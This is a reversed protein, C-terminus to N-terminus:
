YCDRASTLNDPSPYVPGNSCDSDVSVTVGNYTENHGGRYQKHRQNYVWHTSPICSISATSSAGDWDAGVIYDPVPSISAFSDLGSGCSSGYVGSKQAPSVHLQATWAAMFSKVAALCSSNSTDYAELDYTVPTNLTEIGLNVLKNYAAIAENKGQSAATSTTYSIRTGFSSCPAQPGVWILMLKWGMNRLSTVYSASTAPCAAVSGGIYLGFNWYPTNTWFAQDRSTNNMLGCSDVGYHQSIGYSAVAPTATTVSPVTIAAAALLAVALKILHSRLQTRRIATL